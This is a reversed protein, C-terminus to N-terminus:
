LEMESEIEAREFKAVSGKIIRQRDCKLVCLYQCADHLTHSQQSTSRVLEPEEHLVLREAEAHKRLVGVM